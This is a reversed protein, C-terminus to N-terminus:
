TYFLKLNKGMNLPNMLRTDMQPPINQRKAKNFLMTLWTEIHLLIIIM